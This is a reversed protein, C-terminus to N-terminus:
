GVLFSWLFFSFIILGGLVVSGVVLYAGRLVDESESEKMRQCLFYTGAFVIVAILSKGIWHHGAFQVLLAKFSASIETLLTMFVILWIVGVTAIVLAKSNMKM